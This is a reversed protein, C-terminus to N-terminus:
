FVEKWSTIDMSGSSRDVEVQLRRTSSFSSATADIVQFETGQVTITTTGEPTTLTEGTYTPDRLLRILANEVGAEALHLALTSDEFRVANKSLTINMTVSATIVLMGVVVFILLMVASHGSHFHVRFEKM